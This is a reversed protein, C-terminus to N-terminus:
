RRSLGAPGMILNPKTDSERLSFADLCRTVFAHDHGGIMVITEKDPIGCAGNGPHELAFTGGGTVLLNLSMLHQKVQGM